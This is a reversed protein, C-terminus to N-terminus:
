RNCFDTTLDSAAPIAPAANVLGNSTTRLSCNLVCKPRVRVTLSKYRSIPNLNKARPIPLFMIATAMGMPQVMKKVSKNM